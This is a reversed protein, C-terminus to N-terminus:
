IESPKVKVPRVDCSGQAPPDSLTESAREGVTAARIRTRKNLSLRTTPLPRRRYDDPASTAHAINTRHEADAPSHRLSMAFGKAPRGRLWPLRVQPLRLFPSTTARGELNRSSCPRRGVTSCPSLRRFPQFIKSGHKRPIRVPSQMLSYAIASQPACGRPKQSKKGLKGVWSRRSRIAGRSKKKASTQFDFIWLGANQRKSRKAKKRVRGRFPYPSHLPRTGGLSWNGIVGSLDPGPPLCSLLELNWHHFLTM